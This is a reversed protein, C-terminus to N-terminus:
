GLKFARLNEPEPQPASGLQCPVPEQTTTTLPLVGAWVPFDLDEALDIPGGRRIKASAQEIPLRLVSTANLEKQTMPRLTGWRGPMMKDIMLALTATKAEDDTVLEPEGFILVSRYNASHHFASRALVLGDLHTVTLCVPNGTSALMTRSIRSGHWYVYHEDRWQITPMVISQGDVQYGVHCLPTGDLIEYITELDYSGRDTARHLRTLDNPELNTM